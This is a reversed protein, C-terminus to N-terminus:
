DNENEIEKVYRSKPFENAIAGGATSLDAAIQCANELAVREVKLSNRVWDEIPFDEGANEMIQQYPAMLPRKLISDDDLTEAIEKLALGGGKVTGEQFASKVANVADEVKDYKYKRDTDTMAGVKIIAFGNQLQSIRNQIGKKMFQSPDGILNKKLDEVRNFIRTESQENKFGGFKASFRECIVKQAMGIDKMQMESLDSSESDYFKGGLVVALDKMVEVQNVYPANVPYIRFGKEHNLMCAKVANSSFGRGILVVDRKGEKKLSELVSIVPVLDDFTHNTMIVPVEGLELTQKEQNNIVMSTGFGNDFLIGNVREVSDTIENTEEAMIVGDPGLEWQAEAILKSLADDEVSVKAINILDEKTEVPKAMSQLKEVVMKCESFIKNRLQLASMKGMLAKGPLLKLAEKLIAQFIVATTTTGDGASENTKILAERTIRIGLDEIEDKSQIEKAINLGDNTIKLGKELLFNKGHPGLTLKVADALLNAGKLIRDQAQTRNETTNVSVVKNVRAM